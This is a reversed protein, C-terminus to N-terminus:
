LGKGAVLFRELVEGFGKLVKELGIFVEGFSRWSWCFDWFGRRAPSQPRKGAKEPGQRKRTKDLSRPRM